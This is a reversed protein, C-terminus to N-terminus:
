LLPETRSPTAYLLGAGFYASTREEEDFTVTDGAHAPAGAFQAGLVAHTSIRSKTVNCLTSPILVQKGDATTVEFYRTVYEGRDIWIDSVVGGSKGDAGLITKGRPDPSKEDVYYAPVARLPVIKPEGHWMMDPHKARQAIAGPGVRAQLPDGTPVLPTGPARSTRAAAYDATERLNDPKVITAAGEGMVFSKPRAAFLLGHAPELRGTQDDELPYGERRDERRIYIVLGFFFLVFSLFLVATADITGFFTLNLPM